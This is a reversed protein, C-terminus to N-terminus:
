APDVDLVAENIFDKFGLFDDVDQSHPGVIVSGCPFRGSGSTHSWAEGWIVMVEGAPRANM